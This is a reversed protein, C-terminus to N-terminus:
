VNREIIYRAIGRLFEAAERSKFFTKDIASLAEQVLKEAL